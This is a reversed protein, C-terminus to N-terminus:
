YEIFPALHYQNEDGKKNVHDKQLPTAVDDHRKPQHRKQEYQSFPRPNPDMDDTRKNDDQCGIEKKINLGKIVM